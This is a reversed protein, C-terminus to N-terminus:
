KRVHLHLTVFVSEPRSGFDSALLVELRWIPRDRFLKGFKKLGDGRVPSVQEINISRLQSFHELEMLGAGASVANSFFFCCSFQSM